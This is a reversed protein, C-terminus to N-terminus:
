SSEALADKEALRPVLVAAAGAVLVLAPLLNARSAPSTLNLSVIGWAILGYGLVISAAGGAHASALARAPQGRQLLWAGVAGLAFTLAGVICDFVYHNGTAVIVVFVLAPYALTAWALRSRPFLWISAVAVFAAFGFHQSAAAATENHFLAGTASLEDQTPPIGLGLEPVWRPPALPYLGIVFVAPVFSLVFATRIRPYREPALLRAATVFAFLVPLHINWYLWRLADIAGRDSAQQILSSEVDLSVLRELRLVDYAHALSTAVSGELPIRAAQWALIALAVFVLEAELSYTTRTWRRIASVVSHLVVM